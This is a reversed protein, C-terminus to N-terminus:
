SLRDFRIGTLQESVDWLRRAADQDLGARKVVARKPPGKMEGFGSPGYFEGGKADPSTAAFLTPLAGGQASQGLLPMVALLVLTTVHDMLGYSGLSKRNAGISTRSVGPHVAMSQLKVGAADARRQLEQAFLLNALKTQNYPRQASYDKEIQLDQWDFTGQGHVMSSVTVVRPAPAALLLPLLLATLSFHGLHGIGFTLEFGDVTSRRSSLPQIGANNILVDLPKGEACLQEAFHKIAQQSSLDLARFEISAAPHLARITEIAALGAQENRDVLVVHAGHQALARVAEYGIGSAGGTVLVRKGSMDPINQEGWGAM